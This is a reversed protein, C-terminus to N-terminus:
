SKRQRYRAVAMRINQESECAPLYGADPWHYRVGSDYSWDNGIDLSWSQGRARYYAPLGDVEGDWQVPCQGGGIMNIGSDCVYGSSSKYDALEVPRAGRLWEHFRWTARAFRNPKRRTASMMWRYYLILLRVQIPHRLTVQESIPVEYNNMTEVEAKSIRNSDSGVLAAM